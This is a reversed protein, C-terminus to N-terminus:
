LMNFGMQRTSVKSRKGVSLLQGLLDKMGSECTRYKSASCSMAVARDQRCLM